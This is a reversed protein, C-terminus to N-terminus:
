GAALFRQVTKEAAGGALGLDILEHVREGGAGPARALGAEIADLQM